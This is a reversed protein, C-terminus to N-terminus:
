SCAILMWIGATPPAQSDIATAFGPPSRHLCLLIFRPSSDYAVGIAPAQASFVSPQCNIGQIQSYYNSITWRMSVKAWPARSAPTNRVRALLKVLELRVILLQSTPVPPHVQGGYGAVLLYLDPMEQVRQRDHRARMPSNTMGNGLPPRPLRPRTERNAGSAPRGRCEDPAIPSPQYSLRRGPADQTRARM